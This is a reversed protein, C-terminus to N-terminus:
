EQGALRIQDIDDYAYNLALNSVVERPTARPATWPASNADDDAFQM